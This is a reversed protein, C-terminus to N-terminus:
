LSVSISYIKEAKNIQEEEEIENGTYQDTMIRIKNFSIQSMQNSEDYFKQFTLRVTKTENPQLIINESVISPSRGEEAVIGSIENGAIHDYLVAVKDTKNTIRVVYTEYNYYKIREEIRIKLYEDEGTKKLEDYGMYDNVCLQLNDGNEKIAMKEEYYAYTQNTLGTALIDDLIKVNYIYYDGYNSYNQISYRKKTQFIEEAYRQFNDLSDDFVNKKCDDTLLAFAGSFDKNTCKNIYDDILDEIKTQLTDPVEKDSKLLVEHPSYTTNLVIPDKQQGLIYNIVIVVAWIVLIIIIKNKHKKIFNRIKLRLKLLM